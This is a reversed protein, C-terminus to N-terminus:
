GPGSSAGCSPSSTTRRWCGPARPSCPRAGTPLRGTRRRRPRHRPAGAGNWALHLARLSPPAQMWDLWAALKAHHADDDQPYIHWVLPAGAWLARVLSDEGRVFNLECSWLLHDYDPQALWPLESVRLRGAGAALAPLARVAAAARGPTVLLHTPESGCAMGALVAELAPPEYCFLSVLREGPRWDIRQAQLWAGRDFAAQRAALDPERLLGGTGSTFGPYFFWKTLGAGPGRFM